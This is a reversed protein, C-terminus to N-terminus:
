HIGVELEDVPELDMTGKEWRFFSDIRTRGTGGSCSGITGQLRILRHGEDGAAEIKSLGCSWDPDDRRSGRRFSLPRGTIKPGDKVMIFIQAPKPVAGPIQSSVPDQIGPFLFLCVGDYPKLNWTSPLAIAVGGKGFRTRLENLPSPCAKAEFAPHIHRAREQACLKMNYEIGKAGPTDRILDYRDNPRSYLLHIGSAQCDKAHGSKLQALLRDSLLWAYSKRVEDSTLPGPPLAHSTDPSDVGNGAVLLREECAREFETLFASMEAFQGESHREGAYRRATDLSCRDLIDARRQKLTGKKEAGEEARVGVRALECVNSRVGSAQCFEDSKLFQFLDAGPRFGNRPALDYLKRIVPYIRSPKNARLFLAYSHRADESLSATAKVQDVVIAPDHIDGGLYGEFPISLIQPIEERSEPMLPHALAFEEYAQIQVRLDELAPFAGDCHVAEPDPNYRDLLAIYEKLDFSFEHLTNQAIGPYDERIKLGEFHECFSTIRLGTGQLDSELKGTEISDPSLLALRNKESLFPIASRVYHRYIRFGHEADTQNKLFIERFKVAASRLSSLDTRTLGHLYQTYLVVPDGAMAQQLYADFVWGTHGLWVVRAWRGKAGSIEVEEKSVSLVEVRSRDPLLATVTGHPSPSQRLRLGSKAVVMRFDSSEAFLSCLPAWQTLLILFAFLYKM